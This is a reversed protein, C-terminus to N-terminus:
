SWPHLAIERAAVVPDTLPTLCGKPSCIYVAARGAVSCCQKVSPVFKEMEPFGEGCLAITLFPNFVSVARLMHTIGAGAALVAQLGGHRKYLDASLLGTIATPYSNLEEAVSDFIAQASERYRDAHTLDAL